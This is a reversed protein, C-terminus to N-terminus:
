DREEKIKDFEEETIIDDAKLKALKAIEDAISVSQMIQTPQNKAKRIEEMKFRVLKLIQEAKDKPIANIMGDEGRGCPILGIDRGQRSATGIGPATIVLTSPMMGKELKINTIKDYSYDEFNERLGLVAPNRIILRKDTAFITNLTTIISAGPILRSQKAVVHVQEDSDLRDKIKYVESLEGSDTVKFNNPSSNDNTEKGGFLEM